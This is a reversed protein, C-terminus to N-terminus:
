GLAALLEQPALGFMERCVRSAHAGDAFGAAHAADTISAGDRVREAMARLRSWRVWAPFALGLDRRWLRSLHSASVGIEAAVATLSLAESRRRSVVELASVVYPHVPRLGDRATALHRLDDETPADPLALPVAGPDLYVTLGAADPSVTEVAHETGAPIVFATLGARTSSEGDPPWVTLGVTGSRLALLQWAAHRHRGTTGVAGDYALAGVGLHVSGTWGGM